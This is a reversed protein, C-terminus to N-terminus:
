DHCNLRKRRGGQNACDTRVEGSQGFRGLQVQMKAFPELMELAEAPKQFTAQLDALLRLNELVGSGAVTRQVAFAEDMAMKAQATSFGQAQLGAQINAAEATKEFADKALDIGGLAALGSMMGDGNWTVGRVPGAGKRTDLKTLPIQREQYPALEGGVRDYPGGRTTGGRGDGGGEDGEGGSYTNPSTYPVLATGPGRPPRTQSYEGYPTYPAGEMTFDTSGSRYPVLARGPSLGTISAYDDASPITNPRTRNRIDSRIGAAEAFNGAGRPMRSAAAAARGIAAAVDNWASAAAASEAAFSKAADGLGALETQTHGVAADLKAFQDAVESIIAALNGQLGIEVGIKYADVM